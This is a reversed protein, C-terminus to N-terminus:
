YINAM